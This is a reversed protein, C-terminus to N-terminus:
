VDALRIKVKHSSGISCLIFHFSPVYMHVAILNQEIPMEKLALAQLLCCVTQQDELKIM